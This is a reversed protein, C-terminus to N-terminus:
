RGDGCKTIRLQPQQDGSSHLRPCLGLYAGVKRSSSFREPDELTLVFSLATVPGAGGVWQLLTVEPYRERCLRNVEHDLDDIDGTACWDM